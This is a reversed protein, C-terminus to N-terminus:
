SGSFIKEIEDKLEDKDKDKADSLVKAQKYERWMIDLIGQQSLIYQQALNLVGRAREHQIQLWGIADFNTALDQIAVQAAETDGNEAASRAKSVAKDVAYQKAITALDQVISHEQRMGLQMSHEAIRQTSSTCGMLLILLTSCIYKM